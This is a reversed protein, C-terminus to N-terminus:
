LWPNNPPMDFNYLQVGCFHKPWAHVHMLIAKTQHTKHGWWASKSAGNRNYNEIFYCAANHQCMNECQADVYGSTARSMVTAWCRKETEYVENRTLGVGM